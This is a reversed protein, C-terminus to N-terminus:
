QVQVRREIWDVGGSGDRVVVWVTVEGDTASLKLENEPIDDFSRQKDFTGATSFWSMLLQENKPGGDDPRAEISEPTWAPQLKLTAATVSTVAGDTSAEGNVTLETLTPNTHKELGSTFARLTKSGIICRERDECGVKLFATIDAPCGDAFSSKEGIGFLLKVPQSAPGDSAAGPPAGTGSLGQAALYDAAQLALTTVQEFRVEATAETGLSLQLEPDLCQFSGDQQTTLLCLGWAYCLPEGPTVGVVKADVTTTEAPSTPLYPPTARVALVRVTEVLSPPSFEDSCGSGCLVVSIVSAVLWRRLPARERLSLPLNSPSPTSQLLPRAM